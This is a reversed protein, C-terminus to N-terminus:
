DSRLYHEPLSALVANYGERFTPYTFEFETSVLLANSCRRNGRHGGPQKAAFKVNLKHALWRHVAYLEVPECDTGIYLPSMESEAVVRLSLHYIVRACDNAHIRNSWQVPFEPAGQGAIIQQIMRQSSRGYIGSFRIITSALATDDIIKESQLLAQGSYSAPTTPSSEDVWEGDGQGYVSTSSIWLLRQPRNAQLQEVAQQIARAPEVYAKRYGEESYEDPTLTAVVIDHGSMLKALLRSDSCDGSIVNFGSVEVPSRRLGTVQWGDDIFLKAARQAIDGFGLFLVKM